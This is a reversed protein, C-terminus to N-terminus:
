LIFGWHILAIEASLNSILERCQNGTVSDTGDNIKDWLPSFDNAGGWFICYLYYWGLSPKLCNEGSIDKRSSWFWSFFWPTQGGPTKQMEVMPGDAMFCEHDPPLLDDSRGLELMAMGWNRSQSRAKSIYRVEFFSLQRLSISCNSFSPFTGRWVAPTKRSAMRLDGWARRNKWDIECLKWSIYCIGTYWRGIHTIPQFQNYDKVGAQLIVLVHQACGGPDYGLSEDFTHLKRTQLCVRLCLRRKM